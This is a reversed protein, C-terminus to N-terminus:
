YDDEVFIPPPPKIPPLSDGEGEFETVEEEKKNAQGKADFTIHGDMLEAEIQDRLERSTGCAEGMWALDPEEEMGPRTRFSYWGGLEYSSVRRGKSMLEDSLYNPVYCRAPIVRFDLSVRTVQEENAMTYHECQNGYFRVCQGNEAVFPHFDGKGVESESWLSNTGYVSTVPLWFNVEAPQHHYQADTHQSGLSKGTGPTHCRFTPIVQHVISSCGLAPACVEACFRSILAKMKQYPSNPGDKDCGKVGCMAHRWKKNFANRSSVPAKGFNKLHKLIQEGEPTKHLNELDQYGVIEEIIARFDYKITDYEVVVEVKLEEPLERSGAAMSQAALDLDAELDRQM